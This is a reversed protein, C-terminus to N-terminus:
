NYALVFYSQVMGCAKWNCLKKFTNDQFILKRCLSELFKEWDANPEDTYVAKGDLFFGDYAALEDHQPPLWYGRGM